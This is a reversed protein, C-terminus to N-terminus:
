SYKTLEQEIRDIEELTEANKLQRKLSEIMKDKNVDTQQKTKNEIDLISSVDKDDVTKSQKREVQSVRKGDIFTLSPIINLLRIRYNPQKTINNNSLDIDLLTKCKRSAKIDDFGEINNNRFSVRKIYRSITDLNIVTLNSNDVILNTCFAINLISPFTLESSFLNNSLVLTSYIISANAIIIDNIDETSMVDVKSLNLTISKNKDNEYYVIQNRTNSM